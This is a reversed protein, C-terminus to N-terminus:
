RESEARAEHILEDARIGIPGIRERLKLIREHLVRRRELEEPSPPIEIRPLTATSEPRTRNRNQECAM